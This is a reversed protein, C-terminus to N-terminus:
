YRQKQYVDPYFRVHAASDVWSTNYLVLLPIKSTAPITVPQQHLLNGKQLITDMAIANGELVMHALPIIKEVRMCGHSYYRNYTNFLIKWPTDHLYVGYPTYFNLKIIGLANDCGTSQRITYPFNKGKLAKWNISTPPVINGHDNLISFNNAAVMRPNLAFMPILERTAISHPVTWYPYMVVESISTIFLPTPTSKKGVVIRSELVVTDCEYVLLNASPINVVVVWKNQQRLCNMWRFTNLAKALQQIRVEVPVNLEKMLNPRLIGDAQLSFLQQVEKLKQKLSDDPLSDIPSTLYGYQWLKYLLPKNACTVAPSSVPRQSHFSSDQQIRLLQGLRSKTAIYGPSTNEYLQLLSGFNGEQLAAALLTAVSICGPTYDLGNYGTEPTANGYLLEDLFHICADTLQLEAMISDTVTFLQTTSHRFSQLTTYQYLSDNLGLAASQSLYALLQTRASDDNIWAPRYQYCDYFIKVQRLYPLAIHGPLVPQLLYERITAPTLQAQTFFAQALLSAALLGTKIYKIM